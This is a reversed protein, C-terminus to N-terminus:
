PCRWDGLAEATLDGFIIEGCSARRWRVTLVFEIPVSPKCRSQVHIQSPSTGCEPSSVKQRWANAYEKAYAVGGLVGGGSRRELAPIPLPMPKSTSRPGCASSTSSPTPGPTGRRKKSSKPARWPAVSVASSSPSAGSVSASTRQAHASKVRSATSRQATAHASTTRGWYEEGLIRFLYRLFSESIVAMAGAECSVVSENFTRQNGCTPLPM